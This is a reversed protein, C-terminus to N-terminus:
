PAGSSGPWQGLCLRPQQALDRVGQTAEFGRAQLLALVAAQQDWGHELLLWGGPKLHAPAQEILHRIADLGDPGSALARQPEHPLGQDALHPDDSAIYPPNAVIADFPSEDVAQFWDGLHLYITLGLQRANQRATELTAPHIDSAHIEWQPRESALALAIAGSGTGLDLVRQPRAPLCALVQEVLLETEPRPILTDPTM